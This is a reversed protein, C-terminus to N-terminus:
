KLLRLLFFYGSSFGFRGLIHTVGFGEKFDANMIELMHISLREYSAAITFTVGDYFTYGETLLVSLRESIGTSKSSNEKRRFISKEYSKNM